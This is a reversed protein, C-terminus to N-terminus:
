RLLRERGSELWRSHTITTAAPEAAPTQKLAVLAAMKDLGPPAPPRAPPSVTHTKLLADLYGTHLDGARFAADNLISQFLPINSKIGGV